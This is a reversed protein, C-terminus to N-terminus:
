SLVLVCWAGAPVVSPAVGLVPLAEALVGRLAGAAPGSRASTSAGESEVAAAVLLVEWAWAPLAAVRGTGLM